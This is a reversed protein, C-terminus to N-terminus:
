VLLDPFLLAHKPHAHRRPTSMIFDQTRLRPTELGNSFCVTRHGTSPVLSEQSAVRSEPSWVKSISQFLLDTKIVPADDPIPRPNASSSAFRPARTPTNSRRLSSSSSITSSM